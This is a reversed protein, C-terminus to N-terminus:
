CNHLGVCMTQYAYTYALVTQNSIQGNSLTNFINPLLVNYQVVLQDHTVIEGVAYTITGMEQWGIAM